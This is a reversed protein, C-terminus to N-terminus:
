KMNKWYGPHKGPELMLDMPSKYGKYPLNVQQVPVNQIGLKQAAYFRHHGDVIYKTGNHEVYKISEKIGNARIDDLIKKMQTKSKTIHHTPNLSGRSMNTVVKPLAPNFKSPSKTGGTGQATMLVTGVIEPDFIEMMAVADNYHEIRSDVNGFLPDFEKSALKDYIEGEEVFGRFFASYSNEGDIINFGWEDGSQYVDGVEFRQDIAAQREKNAENEDGYLGDVDIFRIPNNYAYLYPSQSPFIDALPDV